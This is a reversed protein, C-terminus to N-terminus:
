GDLITNEGEHCHTLVNDSDFLCVKLGVVQMGTVNGFPDWVVPAGSLGNTNNKAGLYEGNVWAYARVGRSDSCLDHIVLYDDNNGGGAAGPGYDVFEASGCFGSDDSYVTFSDDTAFATQAGFVVTAVTAASTALVM